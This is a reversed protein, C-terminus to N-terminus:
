GRGYREREERAEIGEVHEMEEELGNVVRLARRPKMVVNFFSPEQGDLLREASSYSEASEGSRRSEDEIIAVAPSVGSGTGNWTGTGPTPRSGSGSSEAHWSPRAPYLGGSGSSEHQWSQRGPYLGPPPSMSSYGSEPTPEEDFLLKPESPSVGWNSGATSTSLRSRHRAAITPKAAINQKESSSNLNDEESSPRGGFFAALGGGIGSTASAGAPSYRNTLALHSRYARLQRRYLWACYGLYLAILGALGAIIGASILGGRRADSAPDSSSSSDGGTAAPPAGGTADPGWQTVTATNGAATITFVPSKGTAFPGGTAPGAAPTTATARGEEDGGIFNAVLDPVKYGYSNALVSNGPHLDAPHDLANFRNTWRLSSADFVFVGPSECPISTANVYGGVVVIQGDRINCTHGARPPPGNGYQEVKFWTFAPISLIYM